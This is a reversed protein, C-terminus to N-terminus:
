RQRSAELELLAAPPAVPSKPGGYNYGNGNLIMVQTGPVRAMAQGPAMEPVEGNTPAPVEPVDALARPGVTPASPGPAAAPAGALAPDECVAGPDAAIAPGKTAEDAQVVHVGPVILLMALSLCGLGVATAFRERPKM